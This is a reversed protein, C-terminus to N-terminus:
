MALSNRLENHRNLLIRQMELDIEINNVTNIGLIDKTSLSTPTLTPIQPNM